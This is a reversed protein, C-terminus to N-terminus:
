PSPPLTYLRASELTVFSGSYRVTKGSFLQQIVEIAEELLQLRTPAEPWYRGVVHENLAEGAGIGFWFRGPFMAALTAAAQALIAPHYRFGPATVGTGFRVRSTQVGLAGLWAWVFASQGQQSTWPHFHDSAMVGGFGADEAQRSWRLLDTPHFQEFMAAYGLFGM